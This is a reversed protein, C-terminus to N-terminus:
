DNTNNYLAYTRGNDYARTFKENTTKELNDFLGKTFVISVIDSLLLAHKSRPLVLSSSELKNKSTVLM